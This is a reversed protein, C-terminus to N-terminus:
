CQYKEQECRNVWYEANELSNIYLIWECKADLMENMWCQAKWWAEDDNKAPIVSVADYTGDDKYRGIAYLKM